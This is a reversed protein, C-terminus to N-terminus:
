SRDEPLSSPSTPSLAPDLPPRRLLLSNSLNRIREYAIRSLENRVFWNKPKESNKTTEKPKTITSTTLPHVRFPHIINRQTTITRLPGRNTPVGGTLSSSTKSHLQPSPSIKQSQLRLVLHIPPNRLTSKPSQKQRLHNMVKLLNTPLLLLLKRRLGRRRLRLGFTRTREYLPFPNEFPLPEPYTWVPTHTKLPRPLPTQSLISPIFPLPRTPALSHKSPLPVSRRLGEGNRDPTKNGSKTSKGVRYKKPQSTTPIPNKQTM